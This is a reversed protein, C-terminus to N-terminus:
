NKPLYFEYFPICTYLTWETVVTKANQNVIYPIAGELVNEISLENTGRRIRFYGNEGWAPGWSNQLLWYKIGDEVGWGVLLVSHNLEEWETEEIGVNKLESEEPEVYIGGSYFHFSPTVFLSAAIPGNKM